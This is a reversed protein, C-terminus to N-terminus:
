GPFVGIDFIQSNILHFLTIVVFAAIRTPRWLLAPVVLLDLVFGSWSFFQGSASSRLWEFGFDKAGGSRLWTTMPEARVLWDWNIKAIAGFFYPVAVQFRLLWLAWEPVTGAARRPEPVVTLLLALLVIFYDHNNYYAKEVLLFYGYTVAFFAACLRSFRGLAIGLATVVLVWAAVRLGTEPLLSVWEFGAFKFQMKPVLYRNEISDGLALQLGSWGMIVGFVVRFLTVSAGDVSAFLRPELRALLGPASAHENPETSSGDTARSAAFEDSRASSKSSRTKKPTRKHRKSRSM